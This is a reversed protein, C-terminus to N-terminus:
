KVRGMLREVHVRLRPDTQTEWVKCPVCDEVLFWKHVVIAMTPKLLSVIGSQKLIEKDSISGAYLCFVFTIAGHPAMGILGKFTCHTPFEETQSNPTECRLKTCDLVVQTESYNQFVDPLHAKVTKESMWVNVAGLVSYLFDAWTTIVRSVASETIYFRHALDKEMLGLSLFTM